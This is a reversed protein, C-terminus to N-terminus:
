KRRAQHVAHPEDCPVAGAQMAVPWEPQLLTSDACSSCFYNMDHKTKTDLLRGLIFPLFWLAWPTIRYHRTRCANLRTHHMRKITYTMHRVTMYCQASTPPTFVMPHCQSCWSAKATWCLGVAHHYPAGTMTVQCMMCSDM